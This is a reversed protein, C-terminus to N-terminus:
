MQNETRRERKKKREGKKKGNDMTRHLPQSALYDSHVDSMSLETAESEKYLQQQQKNNNNNNYRPQSETSIYINLQRFYSDHSSDTHTHSGAQLSRKVPSLPGGFPTSNNPGGPVPFVRIPLFNRKREREREV